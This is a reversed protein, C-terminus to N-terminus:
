DIGLHHTRAVAPQAAVAVDPFAAGVPEVPQQRQGVDEVVPLQYFLGARPDLPGDAALPGVAIEARRFVTREFAGGYLAVVGAVPPGLHDHELHQLLIVRGRPVFADDFQYGAIEAVLQALQRFGRQPVPREPALLAAAVVQAHYVPEVIDRAVFEQQFQAVQYM